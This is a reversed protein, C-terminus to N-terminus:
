VIFEYIKQARKAWSFNEVLVRNNRVMNECLEKSKLLTMIQNALDEANESEFYRCNVDPKLVENISPLNSAIIPCDCAMYEFIKLPSTYNVSIHEKNNPVIGIDTNKICNVIEKRSLTDSFTIVQHLKYFEILDFFRKKDALSGSGVIIVHVENENLFRCAEVLTDVGKWTQFSGFYAIVRKDKTKPFRKHFGVENRPLDRFFTVDVGSYVVGIKNSKIGFYKIIDQKIGDTIVVLLDPIKLAEREQSSKVKSSVQHYIKHAEFIIKCKPRLSGPLLSLFYLFGFDRTFIFDVNRVNLLVYFAYVIRSIREYSSNNKFSIPVFFIKFNPKTIDLDSLLKQLNESDTKSAFFTVDFFDGLAQVMSISAIVDATQESLDNQYVFALKM